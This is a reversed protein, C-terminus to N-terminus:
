ESRKQHSLRMWIPARKFNTVFKGVKQINKEMKLMNKVRRAIKQSKIVKKKLFVVDKGEIAAINKECVVVNIRIYIHTSDLFLIDKM